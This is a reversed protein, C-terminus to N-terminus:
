AKRLIDEMSLPKKGAMEEVKKEMMRDIEELLNYENRVYDIFDMDKRRHPGENLIKEELLLYGGRMYSELIEEYQFAEEGKDDYGFAREIRSEESIYTDHLLMCFRYLMLIVEGSDRMTEKGIKFEKEGMEDRKDTMEYLLGVMMAMEAVDHNNAFLGSSMLDEHIEAHKGQIVLTREFLRRESKIGM